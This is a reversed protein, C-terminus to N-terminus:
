PSMIKGLFRHQLYCLLISSSADLVSISRQWVPYDFSPLLDAEPYIGDIRPLLSLLQLCSIYIVILLFVRRSRVFRYSRTNDERFMEFATWVVVCIYLGTTLVRTLIDSAFVDQSSFVIIDFVQNLLSLILLTAIIVVSLVKKDKM